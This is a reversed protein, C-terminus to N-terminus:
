PFFEFVVGVEHGVICDRGLSAGSILFSKWLRWLDGFIGTDFASVFSTLLLPASGDCVGLRDSQEISRTHSTIFMRKQLPRLSTCLIIIILVHPRALSMLLLNDQSDGPLNSAGNMSLLLM